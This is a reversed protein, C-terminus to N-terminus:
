SREEDKLDTTDAPIQPWIDHVVRRTLTEGIFTVLLALFQAVLLIGGNDGNRSLTDLGELTGDARVEVGKLAPEQAKAMALARSLLSAFGASGALKALDFRLKDCVLAAANPNSPKSQSEEFAILRRAMIYIVPSIKSM